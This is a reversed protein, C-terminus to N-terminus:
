KVLSYYTEFAEPIQINNLELRHKLEDMGVMNVVNLWNSYTEEETACELNWLKVLMENFVEEGKLTVQRAVYFAQLIEPHRKNIDDWNLDISAM